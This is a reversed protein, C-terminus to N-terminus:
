LAPCIKAKVSSNVSLDNFPIFDRILQRLNEYEKGDHGDVNRTWYAVAQDGTLGCFQRLTLASILGSAHWGNWCHAYIPGREANFIAEYIMELIKRHNRKPDIQLYDLHNAGRLSACDRKPKATGFNTAYLYVANKFGEQCLNDLGGEQLPNKNDRKGHKNYVNNAGGRYFVGKLVERFNRVGYLDEFGEGFNDVRKEYGDPLAYRADYYAGDFSTAGAIASFIAMSIFIFM